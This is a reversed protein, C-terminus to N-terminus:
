REGKGKGCGKARQVAGYLPSGRLVYMESDLGGRAHGWHLVDEKEGCADPDARAQILMRVVHLASSTEWSDKVAAWLPTTEVLCVSRNQPLVDSRQFGDPTARHELLLRAVGAHAALAASFLPTLIRPQRLDFWSTDFERLALLAYVADGAYPRLWSLIRQVADHFARRSMLRAHQPRDVYPRLWHRVHDLVSGRIAKTVHAKEAPTLAPYLSAPAYSAVMALGYSGIQSRIFPGVPDAGIALDRCNLTLPWSEAYSMSRIDPQRPETFAWLLIQVPIVCSSEPVLVILANLM